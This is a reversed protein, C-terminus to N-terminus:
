TTNYWPKSNRVAVKIKRIPINKDLALTINTNFKGLIEDLSNGDIQDLQMDKILSDQDVENYNRFSLEKIPMLDKHANLMTSILCHDSLYPGPAIYKPKITSLEDYSILDLTNGNKYTPFDTFNRLGLGELSDLFERGDPDKDDNVHINLDGVIILNKRSTRIGGVLQIFENIFLNNGPTHYIGLLTLDMNKLKVSWFGYEIQETYGTDLLKVKFCSKIM